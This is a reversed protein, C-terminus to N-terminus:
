LNRHILWFWSWLMHKNRSRIEIVTM